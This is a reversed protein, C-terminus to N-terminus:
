ASSRKLQRERWIVLLGGAAILLAGPVLDAWPAEGYFVWGLLYAIPIGFYSFPALNSQETMRFAVLMTLVASGGCAGMLVIWGLDGWGAIPSYGGLLLVLLGAGIAAVVSSYLNALPSPVDEDFLRAAVGAFAYGAAAGLPLAADWSLAGQGVGMVMLVGAFGVLVASWRVAGVKEALLVVSFGVMFLAMAYSITTATAFPLRALSLYFLLQAVVVVLGRLVGLRWQRLRLPRGARHWASLSWLAIVSPILGFLNRYASLEAASYRPSLHKIVLGMADFLLLALFYLAIATYTANRRTVPTSIDSM